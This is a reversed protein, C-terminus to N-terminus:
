TLLSHIGLGSFGGVLMVATPKSKLLELARGSKSVPLATLIEDLRKLRAFVGLYHRKILMCLAVLAGTVVVTLWAGEAFKELVNVLLIGFCLVFGVIHIGINRGWDPHKRRTDKM